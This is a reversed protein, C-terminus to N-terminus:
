KLRARSSLSFLIARGAGGLAVKSLAMPMVLARSQVPLELPQSPCSSLCKISRQGGPSPPDAQPALLNLRLGPTPRQRRSMRGPQLRVSTLARSLTPIRFKTEQELWWTHSM